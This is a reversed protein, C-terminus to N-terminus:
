CSGADGAASSARGGQREAVLRRCEAKHGGERWHRLQCERSCYAAQM